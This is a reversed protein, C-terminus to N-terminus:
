TTCSGEMVELRALLAEAEGALSLDNDSPAFRAADCARFFDGTAAGDATSVGLECLASEIEGPTAAGPPLLFRSRLYALVAAAVTAPPDATRGAKRIADCARRAARSRRLRTLRAADPFLRRWTVYWVIAGCPGLLGAALLMWWVPELPPTDLLQPGTAVIFLADPETMAEPPPELKPAEVVTIPVRTAKTLPFQKKGAPAAPNFYHFELEPVQNVSRNRPKLRYTFKVDAADAGLSTGADTIVFQTQFEPLKKLDPRVIEKPNTAGVITLTATIDGGEPVKTPEVSWSVKVSTGRAQYFNTSPQNVLPNVQAFATNFQLAVLFMLVFLTYGIRARSSIVTLSNQCQTM